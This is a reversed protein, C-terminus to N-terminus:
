AGKVDHNFDLMTTDSKEVAKALEEVSHERGKMDSSVWSVGIVGM